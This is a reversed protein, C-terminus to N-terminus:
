RTTVDAVRQADLRDFVFPTAHWHEVDSHPWESVAVNNHLRANCSWRASDGDGNVGSRAHKV